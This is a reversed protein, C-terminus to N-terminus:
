TELLLAALIAMAERALEANGGEQEERLEAIVRGVYGDAHLAALDDETPQLRLRSLDTRLSRFRAEAVSLAAELQQRGLLHLEGALSLDVVALEPLAQLRAITRELDSAVALSEELEIWPHRGVARVEVKPEAGAAPIDVLLVNGPDNAKFRDQEPTGSYWTRADIRRTGHWDGLALYDLAARGARDAAIPNPSDIGEALVGQVSGHALGVRVLGPATVAHDFWATEDAATQRQTLPAPLVAFGREPFAMVQASLALHVNAAVAGLRRARTWVSEALAADHNGPILVWPGAYAGMANFLRRITRDSVTQADFVDGAVLVADVAEQHAIDALREVASLRAEALALADEPAFRAYQRGIQWDATHLFRPM